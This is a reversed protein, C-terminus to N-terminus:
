ESLGGALAQSRGSPPPFSHIAGISPRRSARSWGAVHLRLLQPLPELPGGPTTEAAFPEMYLHGDDAGDGHATDLDLDVRAPFTNEAQFLQM